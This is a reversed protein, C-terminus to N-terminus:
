NHTVMKIVIAFEKNHRAVIYPSMQDKSGSNDFPIIRRIANMKCRFLSFVFIDINNRRERKRGSVSDRFWLNERCLITPVSKKPRNRLDMRTKSASIYLVQLYFKERFLTVFIFIIRKTLYTLMIPPNQTTTGLM